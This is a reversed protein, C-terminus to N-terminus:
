KGNSDSNGTRCHREDRGGVRKDRRWGMGMRRCLCAYGSLAGTFKSVWFVAPFSRRGKRDLRVEFSFCCGKSELAGGDKGVSTVYKKRRRRAFGGKAIRGSQNCRGSLRRGTVRFWQSPYM